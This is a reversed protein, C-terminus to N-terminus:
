SFSTRHSDRVAHYSKPQSQHSSGSEAGDGTAGLVRIEDFQAVM